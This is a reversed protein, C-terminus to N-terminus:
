MVIRGVGGRAPTTANCSQASLLRFCAAATLTFPLAWTLYNVSCPGLGSKCMVPFRMMEIQFPSPASCPAKRLPACPTGSAVPVVCGCRKRPLCLWSWFSLRGSFVRPFDLCAGCCICMPRLWRIGSQKAAAPCGDFAESSALMPGLRLFARSFFPM